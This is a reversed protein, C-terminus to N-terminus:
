HPLSGPFHPLSRALPLPDGAVLSPLDLSYCPLSELAHLAAAAVEAQGM